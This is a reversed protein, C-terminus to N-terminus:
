DSTSPGASTMRRAPLCRPTRRKKKEPLLRCVLYMPSQLESTHEESRGHRGRRPPVDALRRRRATCADARRRAGLRSFGAGAPRCIPLADHLPLTHIDITAGMLFLLLPVVLDDVM